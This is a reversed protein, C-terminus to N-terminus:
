KICVKNRGGEKAEYLATDAASIVRDISDGPILQTLGASLTCSFQDDANQQTIRSFNERVDNLIKEATEVDTEPLIIAFEEGGYRGILDSKRLRKKLMRAVNKLVRDGAPHGYTDNVVKFHDIDIMAFSLPKTQRQARSVEAELLTKISVHNFLGTLGDNLMYSRLKRFRLARTRVSALLHENSVPKQLFDDGGLEMAFLRQLPDSETSLFIIPVGILEDKQRIVKAVDLGSCQPMHIDMLILEPQFDSLKELLLDVNYITEVRMGSARLVTAYHEALVEMDDVILVKFPEPMQKTTLEELREFLENFDLPKTLYASGHAQVAALRAQWDDRASIFISPVRTNSFENFLKAFDPGALGGEKLQVDVIMASPTRQQIAILAPDTSSFTQVEYNFYNLQSVIEKALLPDDEIVYILRDFRNPNSDPDQGALSTSKQKDPRHKALAVIHQLREAINKKTSDTLKRPDALQRLDNEIHRAEVSIEPFGFTGASGTLNHALQRLLDFAETGNENLTELWAKNIADINSPLQAIYKDQLLRLKKHKNTM